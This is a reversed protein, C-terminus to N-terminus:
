SYTKDLEEETLGFRHLLMQRIFELQDKKREMYSHKCHEWYKCKRNSCEEKKWCKIKYYFVWAWMFPISAFYVIIIMGICNSICNSIFNM